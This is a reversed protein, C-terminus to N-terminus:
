GAKAFKYWRNRGKARIIQTPPSGKFHERLNRATRSSIRPAVVISVVIATTEKVL